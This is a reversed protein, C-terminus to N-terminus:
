NSESVSGFKELNPHWNKTAFLDFENKFKTWELSNLIDPIQRKSKNQIGFVGPPNSDPDPFIVRFRGM